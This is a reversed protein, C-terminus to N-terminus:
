GGSAALVRVQSIIRVLLTYVLSQDACNTIWGTVCSSVEPSIVNQLVLLAAKYDKAQVSLYVADLELRLVEKLAHSRFASAPLGDIVAQLDTIQQSLPASAVALGAVFANLGTIFNANIVAGTTADYKTVTGGFPTSPSVIFFGSGVFLNNGSLAIASFFPGFGEFLESIGFNPNQVGTTANYEGVGSQRFGLGEVFTNAVFLASGDGSLVLGIPGTLGTIFNTNIAAGTIANYKGVTANSNNAVFLATGDASVAFADPGSLGTIFNTNIAAGTIANYKSVTGNSNNAVFLATGDASVALGTPGSLGTIFSTNIVAGTIANYKGVTGNSNNAVFLATGDASVALGSPGSLGTIFNANIVAGTTTDYKGVTNTASQSVYLQAHASRSMAWLATIGLLLTWLIRCQPRWNSTTITKM